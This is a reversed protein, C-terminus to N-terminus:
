AKRKPAEYVFKASSTKRNGKYWDLWVEWQGFREVIEEIVAKVNAKFAAGTGSTQEVTVRVSSEKTHEFWGLQTVVSGGSFGKKMLFGRAAAPTISRGTTRSQELGWVFSAILPTGHAVRRVKWANQISIPQSSRSTRWGLSAQARPNFLVNHLASSIPNQIVTM